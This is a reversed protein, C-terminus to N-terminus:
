KQRRGGTLAGIFTDVVRIQLMLYEFKQGDFDCNHGIRNSEGGDVSERGTVANTLDYSRDVCTTM